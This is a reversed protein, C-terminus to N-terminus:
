LDSCDLEMLVAVLKLSYISFSHGELRPGHDAGSRRSARHRKLSKEGHVLYEVLREEHQFLRSRIMISVSEEVTM